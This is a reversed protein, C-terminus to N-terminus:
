LPSAFQGIIRIPKGHSNKYIGKELRSHFLKELQGSSHFGRECGSTKFISYDAPQCSVQINLFCLGIGTTECFVDVNKDPAGIKVSDALCYLWIPQLIAVNGTNVHQDLHAFWRHPSGHM